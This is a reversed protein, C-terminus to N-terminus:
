RNIVVIKNIRSPKRDAFDLIAYYVGTDLYYGNNTKGDWSIEHTIATLDAEDLKRHYVMYGANDYIIMNGSKHSEPLNYRFTTKEGSATSFPNPYNFFELESLASSASVL